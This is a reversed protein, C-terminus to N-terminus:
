RVFAQAPRIGLMETAPLMMIRLDWAGDPFSGISIQISTYDPHSITLLEPGTLALAGFTFVGEENARVTRGTRVLTVEAGEVPLPTDYRRDLITGRLTFTAPLYAGGLLPLVLATMLTARILWRTCIASLSRTSIM